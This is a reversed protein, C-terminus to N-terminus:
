VEFGAEALLPRATSASFRRLFDRGLAPATAKSALGASYVTKMQFEDPLAGVYAVGKNPRIETIQTMGIDDARGSQALWNMAAYGNPFYHLRDRVRDLVRLREMAGMVVKGATAVTPDPCVIKTAALLAAGLAAATSVDPLPMGARVAVGTGVTGLDVRSASEVLGAAALEEILAQTLIIVDVAEGAVVRTKMAGVAGYDAVVEDGTDRQFDGIIRETVAQAAGASLVRLTAM